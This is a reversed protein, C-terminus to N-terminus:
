VCLPRCHAVCHRKWLPGLTHLVICAHAVIKWLPVHVPPQSTLALANKMTTWEHPDATHLAINERHHLSCGPRASCRTQCLAACGPHCATCCSTNACHHVGMSDPTRLVICACHDATPLVKACHHMCLPDPIHLAICKANCHMRPTQQTCHLMKVTTYACPTPPPCPSTNQVATCVHPAPACRVSHVFPSPTHLATLKACVPPASHAIYCTQCLLAHVPLKALATYLPAPAHM